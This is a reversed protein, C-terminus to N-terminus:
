ILGALRAVDINLAVAGYGIKKDDRIEAGNSGPCGAPIVLKTGFGLGETACEGCRLTKLLVGSAPKAWCAYDPKGSNCSVTGTFRDM